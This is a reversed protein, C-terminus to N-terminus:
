WCEQGRSFLHVDWCDGMFYHFPWDSLQRLMDSVYYGCCTFFYLNTTQSFKSSPLAWGKAMKPFELIPVSMVQLAVKALQSFLPIYLVNCGYSPSPVTGKM